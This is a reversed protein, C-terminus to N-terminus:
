IELKEAGVSGGRTWIKVDHPVVVEAAFTGVNPYLLRIALVALGAGVLQAVVFPPMSSPKIGAFTNSLMRAATVAPNAFSTSATFFYAGGVYAGVAFPAASARGSRSVGFLILLLGFTAVVEALWVGGSSRVRTSLEVAPMSFMLNAVIAGLAGGSVQAAIYAAAEGNSLGGFYRDVLTVVPNLHAGSVPGIALIIAVLAAGTAAANELLRLGADNPSLRSAAIGSGIVATALLATGLFEGFLRRAAGSTLHPWPASPSPGRISGGMCQHSDIDLMNGLGDVLTLITATGLRTLITAM